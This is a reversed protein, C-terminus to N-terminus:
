SPCQRESPVKGSASGGREHNRNGEIDSPPPGDLQYTSGTEAGALMEQRFDHFFEEVTQEM